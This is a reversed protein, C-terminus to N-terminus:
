SGFQNAIAILVIAGCYLVVTSALAMWVPLKQGNFEKWFILGSLIGALPACQGIAYAAAPSLGVAQSSTMVGLFGISWIAGAGFAVLHGMFSTSFYDRIYTGISVRPAGDLPFTLSFPVVLVNSCVTGLTYWFMSGYPSLRGEIFGVEKPQQYGLASVGGGLGLFIGSIILVIVSRLTGPKNNSNNANNNEEEQNKQMRDQQQQEGAELTAPTGANELHKAPEHGMEIAANEVDKNKLYHMLAAAILALLAVGMGSFLFAPSSSGPNLGYALATGVVLGSGVGVPFSIALGLVEFSKTLGLNGFNWFVGGLFVLGASKGLGPTGSFDFDDGTFTRTDDYAEFQGLALSFVVAMFFLTFIFDTYFVEFRFDINRKNGLVLINGWLGWGLLGIIAMLYVIGGHPIWM